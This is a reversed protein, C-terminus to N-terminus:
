KLRFSSADIASIESDAFGSDYKSILRIAFYYDTHEDFSEGVSYAVLQEFEEAGAGGWNCRDNNNGGLYSAVITGDMTTIKSTGGNIESYFLFTGVYDEKNAEPSTYIYWVLYDIGPTNFIDATAQPKYRLFEHVSGLQNYIPDADPTALRQNVFVATVKMSVAGMSIEVRRDKTIFRGDVAWHSFYNGKTDENAIVTVTDNEFYYGEGEGTEAIIGNTVTLELKYAYKAYIAITDSVTFTYQVEDSVKVENGFTDLVYWNTFFMGAFPEDAIVTCEDGISFKNTASDAIAGNVVSVLCVKNGYVAQVSADCTATFTYPNQKITETTNIIFHSFERNQNNVAEITVEDGIKVRLSGIESNVTVGSSATITAYEARVAAKLAVDKEVKFKYASEASVLQEGVYWGTFVCDEPVDAIATCPAGAPYEGSGKGGEVTVTYVKTEQPPFDVQDDCAAFSLATVVMIGALLISFFSKKM